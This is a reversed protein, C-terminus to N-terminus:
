EIVLHILTSRVGIITGAGKAKQGKSQRFKINLRVGILFKREGENVINKPSFKHPFNCNTKGHKGAQSQENNRFAAVVDVHGALLVPESATCAGAGAAAAAGASAGAAAGAAAAGQVVPLYNGL